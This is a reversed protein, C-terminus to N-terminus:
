DSVLNYKALKDKWGSLNIQNVLGANIWDYNPNNKSLLFGKYQQNFTIPLLTARKSLQLRDISYDLVEKDYVLIEVEDQALAQLGLEVTKYLYETRINQYELFDHSSSAYVTGIKNVKRLDNLNEVKQNLSSVTLTSAISATFSSIIVVATFMWIMAVIRGTRTKPVKDGYGVTAMTVASWWLGDFLGLLGPRFLSDHNKREAVWVATGFVFIIFVLLFLVRLFDFSFFNKLFLIFQSRRVQSVVVGVSSVFFPQTVDFLKLRVDNVHLPNICVDVKGFDLARIAGLQDNYMIYEYPQKRDKAILQWLDISLGSYDGEDTGLVFPPDIYIGVRLIDETDAHVSDSLVISLLIVFLRIHIM